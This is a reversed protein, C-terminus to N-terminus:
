TFHIPVKVMQNKKSNWIIHKHWTCIWTLLSIHGKEPQNIYEWNKMMNSAETRRLLLYLNKKSRMTCWLLEGMLYHKVPPRAWGLIERWSERFKPNWTGRRKRSSKSKGKTVRHGLSGSHNEVSEFSGRGELAGLPETAKPWLLLWRQPWMETHQSKAKKWLSSMGVRWVQWSNEM